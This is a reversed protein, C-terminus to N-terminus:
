TISFHFYFYFPSIYIIEQTLTSDQCIKVLRSSIGPLLGQFVKSFDESRKEALVCLLSICGSKVSPSKEKEAWELTIFVLHGIVLKNEINCFQQYVDDSCSSLMTEICHLFCIQFEDQLPQIQTTLALLSTLVDKLIFYRNLKVKNYFIQIFNIVSITYNLHSTPKKLYVQHPFM